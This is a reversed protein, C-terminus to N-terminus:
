TIFPLKMVSPSTNRFINNRRTDKKDNTILTTYVMPKTDSDTILKVHVVPHFQVVTSQKGQCFRGPHTWRSKRSPKLISPPPAPQSVSVDSTCQNQNENGLTSIVPSLKAVSPCCIAHTPLSMAIISNTPSVLKRDPFFLRKIHWTPSTLPSNRCSFLPLYIVLYLLWIFLDIFHM